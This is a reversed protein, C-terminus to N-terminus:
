FVFKKSYKCYVPNFRLNPWLTFADLKIGMSRLSMSVKVDLTHQLRFRMAEQEQCQIICQCEAFQMSAQLLPYFLCLNIKSVKQPNCEKMNEKQHLFLLTGM